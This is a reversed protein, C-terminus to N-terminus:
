RPQTGGFRTAPLGKATLIGTFFVTLIDDCRSELASAPESGYRHLFIQGYLLQNLTEVLWAAPMQRVLGDQMLSSMFTAWRSVNTRRHEFYTSHPRDRFVAREQIFLEILDPNQDFFRLYGRVGNELREIAPTSESSQSAIFASMRNLGRTLAAFFLDQKSPFARYITGKGIGLVGALIEIDTNAYGKRAFLETAAALIEEKREELAAADQKPRGRKTGSVAM